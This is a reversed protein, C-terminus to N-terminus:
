ASGVQPEGYSNRLANHERVLLGWRADDLKVFMTGRGRNLVVRVKDEDIGSEAAADKVSLPGGLLVLRVRASQGLGETVQISENAFEVSYDLHRVRIGFEKCLRGRNVKRHFLGLHADGETGGNGRLEWVSRALNVKYISGYPKAVARDSKVDEGTIHDLALITAGIYRFASFLRLASENADGGERASGSAMGVSDVVVLGVREDAVRKAIDEAMDELPAACARYMIEPAAIGLGAAVRKVREDIEYADTEWDLYLVPCRRVHWGLVDHGAAVAVSLLDALYSKGTGGAGFIITAKGAPLIPSVLYSEDPQPALHGVRVVPEGSREAALVGACFEELMDAWPLDEPRSRDALMKALRDRATTSSLNFSARHIHGRGRAVVASSVMMEGHLEGARRRLHDITMEVAGRDWLGVYGMGSRALMLEAM